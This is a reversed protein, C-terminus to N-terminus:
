HWNLKLRMEETMLPLKFNMVKKLSISNNKKIEEYRIITLDKAGPFYMNRIFKENVENTYGYVSRYKKLLRVGAGYTHNIASNDVKGNEITLSHSLKDEIYIEAYDAGTSLGKQLIRLGQQKSIM